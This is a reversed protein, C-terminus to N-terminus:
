DTAAYRLTSVYVVALELRPWNPQNLSYVLSGALTAWGIPGLVLAIAQSMGMYVAFPLAIGLANTLSGLVTSALLYVRFGSMKATLMVGGSVLFGELHPEGGDQKLALILQQRQTPTLQELLSQFLQVVVAGEIEQTALDSWTRGQLLASWDLGIHDAVDTVIQKWSPCGFLQGISGGKLYRIHNCLTEPASGFSSDLASALNQRQAESAASM